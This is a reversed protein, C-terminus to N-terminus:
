LRLLTVGDSPLLGAKAAFMSVDYLRGGTSAQVTRCAKHDDTRSDPLTWRKGSIPDHVSRRKAFPQKYRSTKEGYTEGSSADEQWDQRRRREEQQSSGAEDATRIPEVSPKDGM